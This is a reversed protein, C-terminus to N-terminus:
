PQDKQGIEMEAVHEAPLMRVDVAHQGDHPHNSYDNRQEPHIQRSEEGTHVAVSLQASLM